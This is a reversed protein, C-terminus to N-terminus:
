MYLHMWCICCSVWGIKDASNFESSIEGVATIIITTDLAAMFFGLLLSFYTILMNAIKHRFSLV